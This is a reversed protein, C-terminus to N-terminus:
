SRHADRNTVSRIVSQLKQPNLIFFLRRVGVPSVEVSFVIAPTGGRLGLVAPMGNIEVDEYSLDAGGTRMVGLLFQAVRQPGVIPVKAAHVVGGGDSVAVVDAALLSELRQVDGDRAAGLFAELLDTREADTVPAARDEQVHLRARSALQRANAETTELVEAVRSHPYGFAERLVYAAREAPSLRELLVLVALSLAEAREAGLLPDGETAVPEPLWPGVYAQRKVRASQLVNIALRTVTTSLFAGPDRVARRDTSNWRLWADQVVDEAEVATGIVRYAIGFLRPRLLEFANLDDTTLETTM